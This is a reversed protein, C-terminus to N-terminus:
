PGSMQGPQETPEPITRPRRLLPPWRREPRWPRFFRVPGPALADAEPAAVPQMDNVLCTEPRGADRSVVVEADFSSCVFSQGGRGRFAVERAWELDICPSLLDLRYRQGGSARIIMADRGVLVYTRVFEARFCQAPASASPATEVHPTPACAALAVLGALPALWRM